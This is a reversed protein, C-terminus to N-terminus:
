VGTVSGPGVRVGLPVFPATGGPRLNPNSSNNYTSLNTVTLANTDRYYDGSQSPQNGSDDPKCIMM